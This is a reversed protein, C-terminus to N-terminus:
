KVPTMFGQPKLTLVSCSVESLISEATNGIFLGAIGTRCVTGMIVLDIDHDEIYKPIEEQAIGEILKAIPLNNAAFNSEIINDFRKQRDQQEKMIMELRDVKSNHGWGKLYDKSPLQWAHIVHLEANESVALDAAWTLIKHNLALGEESPAYVDIAAVIRKFPKDEKTGITLVPCPCKRMLHITTSGFFRKRPHESTKAALIVLDYNEQQVKKTVEIFPVGIANQADVTLYNHHFQEVNNKLIAHQEKLLNDMIEQPPLLTILALQDKPIEEAVSFFTVHSQHNKAIKISQAIVSPQISSAPSVVLLKHLTVM